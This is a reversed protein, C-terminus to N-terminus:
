SNFLKINHEKFIKKANLIYAILSILCLIASIYYLYIMYDFYLINLIFTVMLAAATVKGIFISPIIFKIKTRAYLGGIVILIDRIIVVLVFWLPINGQILLILVASIIMLKDALPDLIKGLESIQNLLRAFFGDFFDTIIATCYIVFSVINDGKILYYSAIIILIIRLSSLLNPITFIKSKNSNNSSTSNNNNNNNNYLKKKYEKKTKQQKM